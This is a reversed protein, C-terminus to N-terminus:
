AISIIYHNVIANVRNPCKIGNGCYGFMCSDNCHLLNIDKKLFPCYLNFNLEKDAKYYQHMLKMTAKHEVAEQEYKNKYEKLNLALKINHQKVEELQKLINLMSKYANNQIQLAKIIISKPKLDETALEFKNKEVIAMKKM